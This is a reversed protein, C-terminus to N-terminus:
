LPFQGNSGSGRSVPDNESAGPAPASELFRAVQDASPYAHGTAARTEDIVRELAALSLRVFASDRELKSMSKQSGNGIRLSTLMVDARIADDGRIEASIRRKEENTSM